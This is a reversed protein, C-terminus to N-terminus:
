RKGWLFGHLTGLQGTLAYVAFMVAVVIVLKMIGFAAFGVGQLLPSVIFCVICVLAAAGLEPLFAVLDRFGVGLVDRLLFVYVAIIHACYALSVGLAAGFLGGFTLGLFLGTVTMLTTIVGCKFM